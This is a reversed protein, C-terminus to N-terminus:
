KILRYLLMEIIKLKKIIHIKNIIYNRIAEIVASIIESAM